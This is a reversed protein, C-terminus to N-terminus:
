KRLARVILAIGGASIALCILWLGALPGARFDNPSAQSMFFLACLGPLLLVVGVVLFLIVAARSLPERPPSAGPIQPETM